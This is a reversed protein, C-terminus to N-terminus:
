PPVIYIGMAAMGMSTATITVQQPTDVTDPATYIFSTDSGGATITGVDPSISGTVATSANFTYVASAALGIVPPDIVVPTSPQPLYVVLLASGTVSLNSKLVATVVVVAPMQASALPTHVGNADISGPGWAVNWLM